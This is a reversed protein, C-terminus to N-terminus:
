RVLLELERMVHRVELPTNDMSKVRILKVGKSVCLREKLRDYQLQKDFEHKNKHYPNPFAWHQPGDYEIAINCSPLWIDLELCKGTLHNALWSPRTNRLMPIGCIHKKLEEYFHDEAQSRKTNCHVDNGHEHYPNQLPLASHMLQLIEYVMPLHLYTHNLTLTISLTTIMFTFLCLELYM